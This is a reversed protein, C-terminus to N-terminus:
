KTPEQQAHQKILDNKWRELAAYVVSTTTLKVAHMAKIDEVMECIEPSVISIRTKPPAPKRTRKM